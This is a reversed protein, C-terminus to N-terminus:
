GLLFDIIASGVRKDVVTVLNAEERATKVAAYLTNVRELLKRKLAETLATSLRTTTWTGVPVDEWYFETQAPHKDTAPAKTFSRPTKQTRMTEVPKSRWVDAGSDYEWEVSSDLTPMAGVVTRVYELQKELYLLTTAPVDSLITTGNVVVNASTLKNTMDKSAELDWQPVLANLGHELLELAAFQPTQSESPLAQGDDNNATYTRTQGKFLDSKQLKHYADTIAKDAQARVAKEVALLQNLRGM